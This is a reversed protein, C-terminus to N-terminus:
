GRLLLQLTAALHRDIAAQAGGVDARGLAELIEGHERCVDAQRDPTRFLAETGVLVQRSSLKSYTKSILSNDTADILLQHFRRDWHIFTGASDETPQDRLEDQHQLAETMADLPVRGSTIASQAAHRELVGRMEMLEAIERGSIVPILAGRKPILEVLGDSVLLLLAERVPTRSVGIRAALEQENLFQGQMRADALVHDRLYEYARDRGSSATGSNIPM